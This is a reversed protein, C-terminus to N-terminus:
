LNVLQVISQAVMKLAISCNQYFLHEKPFIVQSSIQGWTQRQFETETDKLDIQRPRRKLWFGSGSRVSASAWGSQNADALIPFSIGGSCNSQCIDVFVHGSERM